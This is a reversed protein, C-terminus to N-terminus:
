INNKNYTIASSSLEVTIIKKDMSDKDNTIKKRRVLWVLCGILALVSIVVAIIIDNRKQTDDSDNGGNNDKYFPCSSSSTQPKFKACVLRKNNSACHVVLSMWMISLPSDNVGYTSDYPPMFDALFDPTQYVYPQNPNSVLTGFKGSLDGVECKYFLGKQYNDISCNYTYGTTETRNIVPCLTTYSESFDGCAM